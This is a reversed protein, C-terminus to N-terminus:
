FEDLSVAAGDVHYRRPNQRDREVYQMSPSDFWFGFVGEWDGNRQKEISLYCDPEAMVADKEGKKQLVLKDSGVAEKRKNRWVIFLNDALDTISGSGKIDFKGPRDYESGGKKVHAILHIHVGTDQAIATLSNVFDKQGNYDDDGPVCKMLNDIVFHQIGFNEVAYRVIALMKQPKVSGTHDYLWLKDDTWSHMSRIFEADPRADGAAQKVMRLMTKEPKMELSAICVRQNQMCLDLSVQSTLMSKGHGNIGGWITLEGSRFAFRGECKQWGLEVVPHTSRSYLADIVGQAWENAPRIKHVEESEAMYDSLNITDGSIVRM